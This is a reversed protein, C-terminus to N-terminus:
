DNKKVLVYMLIVVMLFSFLYLGINRQKESSSIYVTKGTIEDFSEANLDTETAGEEKPAYELLTRNMTSTEKIKYQDCLRTNLGSIEIDESDETDLGKVILEYKGEKYEKKCNPDLQLSLTIPYEFFRKEVNIKAKKTVSDKGNKIWAEVSQKGTDGKYINIKFQVNDGFKAKEDSGLYVKEISIKSNLEVDKEKKPNDKSPTPISLMWKKNIKSWSVGEKSSGYSVKDILNGGNSFLNVEEFDENNLLGSFGNVYVVLYEKPGIITNETNTESIFLRHGFLDEIYFGELSINYDEDNYVEIWEGGPMAANDDGEPDPMIENISIKYSINNSNEKCPSPICEKLVGILNPIKCLTKGNGNGGYKDSYSIADLITNNGEIVISDRDNNLNNGITAGASLINCDLDGYNFGEEVILYYNSNTRKVLSLKDESKLDRLTLNDLLEDSYIEIYEFNNDNGAPDYNIENIYTNAFVNFSFLILFIIIKKM